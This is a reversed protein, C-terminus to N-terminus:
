ALYQEKDIDKNILRLSPAVLKSKERKDYVIDKKPDM